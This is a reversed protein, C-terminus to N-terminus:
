PEKDLKSASLQADLSLRKWGGRSPTPAGEGFRKTHEHEGLRVPGDSGRGKPRDRPPSPPPRPRGKTPVRGAAIAQRM